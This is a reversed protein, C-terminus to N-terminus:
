VCVDANIYVLIYIHIAIHSHIHPQQTGADTNTYLTYKDSKSFISAM